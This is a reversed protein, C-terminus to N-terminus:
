FLSCFVSNPVKNTFVQFHRWGQQADGGGGLFKASPQPEFSDVTPTRFANQWGLSSRTNHSQVFGLYMWEWIAPGRWQPRELVRWAVTPTESGHHWQHRYHCGPRFWDSDSSKKLLIKWSFYWFVWFIKWTQCLLWQHWQKFKNKQSTTRVSGWKWSLSFKQLKTRFTLYISVFCKIHFAKCKACHRVMNPVVRHRLQEGAEVGCRANEPCAPKFANVHFNM